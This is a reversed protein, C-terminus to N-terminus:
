RGSGWARGPQQHAPLQGLRHRADARAGSAAGGDACSGALYVLAKPLLVVLLRRRALRFLAGRCVAARILFSGAPLWAFAARNRGGLWDALVGGAMVGVVGGILLLLGFFHSTEVLHSGFSRRMLSPLWFALGYGMMSCSAAAFSM